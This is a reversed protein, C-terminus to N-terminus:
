APSRHPLKYAWRSNPNILTIIFWIELMLFLLVGLFGDPLISEPPTLSSLWPHSSSCYVVAHGGLRVNVYEHRERLYRRRDTGKYERGGVRYSYDVVNRAHEYTVVATEQQGDKLLWYRTWMDRAEGILFWGVFLVGISVPFRVTQLFSSRM